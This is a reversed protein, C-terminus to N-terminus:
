SYIPLRCHNGSAVQSLHAGLMNNEVHLVASYLHVDDDDDDDDHHHHHHHHHGNIYRRGGHLFYCARHASIGLQLHFDSDGVLIYSVFHRSRVRV